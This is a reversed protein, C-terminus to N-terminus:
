RGDSERMWWGEERREGRQRKRKRDGREGKKKRVGKVFETLDAFM